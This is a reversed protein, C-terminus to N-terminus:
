RVRNSLTKNATNNHSLRIAATEGHIHAGSSIFVGVDGDITDIAYTNTATVNVGTAFFLDTGTVPTFLTGAGTIDQTVVQLPM